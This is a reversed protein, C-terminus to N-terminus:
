QVSQAVTAKAKYRKRWLDLIEEKKTEILGATKLVRNEFDDVHRQTLTLSQSAFGYLVTYYLAITIYIKIECKNQM